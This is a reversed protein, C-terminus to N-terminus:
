EGEYVVRALTLVDVAAAGARMLAKACADATAGTTLVDDVLLLRCRALDVGARLRFVGKLNTYRKGPPLDKQPLTNRRRPLLRDAIPAELYRALRAALIDPGNVGRFLRRTWYMPVALVADLELRKLEEGWRLSLLQAMTEALPESGPRKM